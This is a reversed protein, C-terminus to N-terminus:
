IIDLVKKHIVNGLIRHSESSLHVCDIDSCKIYEGANLYHCNLSKATDRYKNALEYSKESCGRGMVAGFEINYINNLIPTPCIILINVNGDRFCQPLSKVRNVLKILGDNIENPSVNICEKTDNTGLMIILLDLPKHSMICPEIYNIGSAGIINIDDFVTTRGGLGEEIVYYSSGLMQQLIGTWRQNREYRVFKEPNSGHTNSDGFCLINTM